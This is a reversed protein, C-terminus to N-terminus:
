SSTREKFILGFNSEFNEFIQFVQTLTRIQFSCSHHEPEVFDQMREFWGM